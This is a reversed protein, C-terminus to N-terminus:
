QFATLNAIAEYIKTVFVKYFPIQGDKLNPGVTSSSNISSPVIKSSYMSSAGNIPCLHLKRTGDNQTPGSTNALYNKATCEISPSKYGNYTAQATVLGLGL